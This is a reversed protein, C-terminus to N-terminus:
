AIVNARVVADCRDGRAEVAVVPSKSLLAVFSIYSITWRFVPSTRAGPIPPHVIIVVKYLETEDLIEATAHTSMANLMTAITM